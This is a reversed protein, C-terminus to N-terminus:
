VGKKERLRLIAEAIDGRTEILIRKAEDKSVGTQSAVFEIDEDSIKIAEERVARQSVGTKESEKDERALELGEERFVGTVQLISQDKSKIMLVAPNEVVIKKDRMYVEVRTVNDLEVVDLGLRKLARKLERPSFGPIM